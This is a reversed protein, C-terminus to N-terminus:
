VNKAVTDSFQLHQLFCVEASHFAPKNKFNSAKGEWCALVPCQLQNTKEILENVSFLEM